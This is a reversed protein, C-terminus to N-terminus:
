FSLPKMEQGQGPVRQAVGRHSPHAPSAPGCTPPGWGKRLVACPAPEPECQLSSFGRKHVVLVKLPGPLAKKSCKKIDEPLRHAVLPGALFRIGM